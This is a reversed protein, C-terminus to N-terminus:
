EKEKLAEIELKTKKMYARHKRVGMFFWGIAIILTILKVLDDFTYNAYFLSSIGVITRPDSM